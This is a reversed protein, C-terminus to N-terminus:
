PQVKRERLRYAGIIQQVQLVVLREAVVALGALLELPALEWTEAETVAMVQLSTETVLIVRLQETFKDL